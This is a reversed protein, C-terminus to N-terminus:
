SRRCASPVSVSVSGHDPRVELLERRRRVGRWGQRSLGGYVFLRAARSSTYGHLM